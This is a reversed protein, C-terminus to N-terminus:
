NLFGVTEKHDKGEYSVQKWKNSPSIIIIISFMMLIM